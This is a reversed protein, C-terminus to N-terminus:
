KVIFSLRQNVGNNNLLLLYYLGTKFNNLKLSVRNNGESATFSSAIIKQGITNLIQYNVVGAKTAVYKINLAENSAAPNPYIDTVINKTAKIYINEIESFSTAGNNDVTKLRYYVYGALQSVDDKFVYENASNGKSKTNYVSYFNVGDISRELEFFNVNEESVTIWKAAVIGEIQSLGFFSLKVPTVVCVANVTRPYKRKWARNQFHVISDCIAPIHNPCGHTEGAIEWFNHYAGVAKLANDLDISNQVPVTQDASGQVLFTPMSNANLSSFNYLRDTLDPSSGWGDIESIVNNLNPKFGGYNASNDAFVFNCSLHGGASGGGVFLYNSDVGFNGAPYNIQKRRISNLCADMDKCSKLNQPLTHGGGVNYNPGYAVYGYTALFKCFSVVYSQTKDNSTSFGGGHMFMFVPRHTNTDGQPTYVDVQNASNATSQAGTYTLNSTTVSTYKASMFDDPNLMVNLTYNATVSGVSNTAKATLGYTGVGITADWSIQGSTPSISVGSPPNVLSFTVAAGGNNISPCVSNQPLKKYAIASSVSYVFSSPATQAKVRDSNLGMLTVVVVTALLTKILQVPLIRGM